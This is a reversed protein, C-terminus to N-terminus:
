AKQGYHPLRRPLEGRRQNVPPLASMQAYRGMVEIWRSLYSSTVEYRFYRARERIEADPEEESLHGLLKGRLGFRARSGAYGLYLVRFSEDALEYIGYSGPLARSAPGWLVVGRVDERNRWPM